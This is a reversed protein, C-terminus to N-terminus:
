CGLRAEGNLPYPNHAYQGARESLDNSDSDLPNRLLLSRRSGTRGSVPGGGECFM